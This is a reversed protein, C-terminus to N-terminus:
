PMSLVMFCVPRTVMIVFSVPLGLSTDIGHVHRRGRSQGDKYGDHSM